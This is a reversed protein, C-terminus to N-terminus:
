ILSTVIIPMMLILQMMSIPRRHLEPVSDRVVVMEAIEAQVSVCRSSSTCNCCWEDHLPSSIEAKLQKIKTPTTGTRRAHKQFRILRLKRAILKALGTEKQREPSPPLRTTLPSKEEDDNSKRKGAAVSAYSVAHM